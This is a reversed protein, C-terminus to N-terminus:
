RDGAEGLAAVALDGSGKLAGTLLCSRSHHVPVVPLSILVFCVAHGQTISQSLRCHYMLLVCLM